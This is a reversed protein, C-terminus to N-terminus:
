LNGNYCNKETIKNPLSAVLVFFITMNTMLSEFDIHFSVKNGTKRLNENLPWKGSKPRGYQISSIFPFLQNAYRCLWLSFFMIYWNSSLNVFFSSTLLGFLGIHFCANKTMNGLTCTSVQRVENSDHWCRERATRECTATTRHLKSPNMIGSSKSLRLLIESLGRVTNHRLVIVTKRFIVELCIQKIAVTSCSVSM